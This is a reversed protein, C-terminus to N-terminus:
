LCAHSVCSLIALSFSSLAAALPLQCVFIQSHWWLDWSYANACCSSYIGWSEGHLDHATSPITLLDFCLCVIGLLTQDAKVLTPSLSSSSSSFVRMILPSTFYLPGAQSLHPLFFWRVLLHWAVWWESPVMKNLSPLNSPSPTLSIIVNFTYEGGCINIRVNMVVQKDIM